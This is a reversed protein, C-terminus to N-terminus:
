DQPLGVVGVESGGEYEFIQGFYVNRLHDVAQLLQRGEEPTPYTGNARKIKFSERTIDVPYIRGAVLDFPELNIGLHNSDFMVRGEGSVALDGWLRAEVGKETTLYMVGAM